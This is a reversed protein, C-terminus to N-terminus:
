QQSTASYVSTEPLPKKPITMVIVIISCIGAGGCMLRNERARRKPTMNIIPDVFATGLDQIGSEPDDNDSEINRGIYRESEDYVYEKKTTLDNM